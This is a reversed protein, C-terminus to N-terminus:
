IKKVVICEDSVAAVIREVVDEISLGTTEIIQADSAVSLPATTRTSDAKDRRSLSQKVESLAVGSERDAIERQRRRAREEPDADLYFKFPTSPFVVTGIDRGEMVLSGFRTLSRFREVMWARVAPMAAVASVHERVAPGRIADGPNVGDLPFRIANEDTFLDMTMTRMVREVEPALLPSPVQQLAKWTLGRYFSGSDVYVWGLRDAVRRSVSSKGSASPGDVAIVSNSM